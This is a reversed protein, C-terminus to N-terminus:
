VNLFMHSDKPAILCKSDVANTSKQRVKFHFLLLLSYNFLIFLTNAHYKSM